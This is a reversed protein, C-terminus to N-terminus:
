GSRGYITHHGQHWLGDDVLGSRDYSTSCHNGVRTRWTKTLSYEAIFLFIALTKKGNHTRNEEEFNGEICYLNVFTQFNLYESSIFEVSICVLYNLKCLKYLFIASM